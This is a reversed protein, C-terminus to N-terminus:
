IIHTSSDPDPLTTNRERWRKWWRKDRLRSRITRTEEGCTGLSAHVSDDYTRECLAFMGVNAKEESKLIQKERDDEEVASSRASAVKMHFGIHTQHNKVGKIM